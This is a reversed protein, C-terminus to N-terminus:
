SIQKRKGWRKWNPNIRGLVFIDDIIDFLYHTLMAGLLVVSTRWDYFYSVACLTFLFMVFYVNHYTLNTNHKHGHEIIYALSRWHRGKIMSFVKKTYEDKKGYTFFYLLHDADPLISGAVAVVIWKINLEGWIERLFWAWALGLLVHFLEHRAHWLVYGVGKVKVLGKRM